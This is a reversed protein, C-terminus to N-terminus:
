KHLHVVDFIGKETTFAIHSFQAVKCVTPMYFLLLIKYVRYTTNLMILTYVDFNLGSSYNSPSHHEPPRVMWRPEVVAGGAGGVGGVEVEVGGDDGEESSDVVVSRTVTPTADQDEVQASVDVFSRPGEEEVQAVEVEAEVVVVVVVVRGELVVESAGSALGGGMLGM